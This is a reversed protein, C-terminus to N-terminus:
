FTRLRVRLVVPEAAFNLGYDTQDGNLIRSRVFAGNEFVGEEVRMFERHLTGGASPVFDVRCARGAVLFTDDSLQAVLAGGIPETNGKPDKTAGFRPPGYTVTAKWPGFSIEQVHIDAQESVGQLRGEFNLRAAERAFSAVISYNAALAALPEEPEKRVPDAVRDIGFPAWGVAGKGIAAFLMHAYWPSGGTEPVLLPNDPRAYLDLAKRYRADDNQYIDPSVVDLAPAALKWIPIVNDTPGGSEYTNAPGPSIPDRLAANTYMPLAYEAKGAAAVQGVYRAINWAHFYEDANAGFTSRWDGPAKQKSGMAAALEAPVPKQFLAEATPSYDRVSGWTGSENEVQVLIVTHSPDATRLHAMLARFARIDADMTAKFLPSPSDVPIGDKGIVRPYLEQHEKMWMPLYHSSGNKWTGFWLLVLRVGHERAQRLLLDVSSTDFKGQMPEFQEWYVPAELTNAHTREIASWVRPLESPWASSNGCQGGLILFPAGDVVLAHRGDKSEFHPMDPAAVSAIASALFIALIRPPPLM